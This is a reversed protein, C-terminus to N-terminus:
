RLKDYQEPTIVGLDRLLMRLALDPAPAIIVPTGAVEGAPKVGPTNTEVVTMGGDKSLSWRHHVAGVAELQGHMSKMQGCWGCPLDADQSPTAPDEKNYMM